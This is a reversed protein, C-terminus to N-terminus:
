PKSARIRMSMLTHFLFQYVLHVLCTIKCTVPAILTLSRLTLLFQALTPLIHSSYYNNPSCFGSIKCFDIKRRQSLYRMVELSKKHRFVVYSCIAFSCPHATEEEYIDALVLPMCETVYHSVVQLSILHRHRRSAVRLTAFSTCISSLVAMNQWRDSKTCQPLSFCNSGLM